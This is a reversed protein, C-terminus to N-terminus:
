QSQKDLLAADLTTGGDSSVAGVAVAPTDGGGADVTLLPYANHDVIEEERQVSDHKAAVSDFSILSVNTPNPSNIMSQDASQEGSTALLSPEVPDPPFLLIEARLRAGANPHLAAFPFVAEDFVVDRSIYVRGSAVDM